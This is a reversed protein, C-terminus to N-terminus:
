VGPGGRLARHIAPANPAVDATLRELLVGSFAVHPNSAVAVVRLRRAAFMRRLGDAQDLPMPQSPFASDRM